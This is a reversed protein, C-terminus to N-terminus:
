LCFYGDLSIVISAIMEEDVSNKLLTGAEQLKIWNENIKKEEELLSPIEGYEIEAARNFESKAKASQAERRKARLIM